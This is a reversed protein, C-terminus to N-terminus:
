GFPRRKPNKQSDKLTQPLCIWLMWGTGRGMRGPTSARLVSTSLVSPSICVRLLHRSPFWLNQKDVHKGWLGHSQSASPKSQQNKQSNTPSINFHWNEHEISEKPWKIEITQSTRQRQGSSRPPDGVDHAIFPVGAATTLQDGGLIDRWNLFLM